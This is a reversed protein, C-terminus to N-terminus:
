VKGEAASAVRAAVALCLVPNEHKNAECEAKRRLMIRRRAFQRRPHLGRSRREDNILQILTAIRYAHWCALQRRREISWEALEVISDFLNDTLNTAMKTIDVPVFWDEIPKM